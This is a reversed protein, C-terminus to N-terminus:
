DYFIANKNLSLKGILSQEMTDIQQDIFNRPTARTDRDGFRLMVNNYLDVHNLGLLHGVEHAPTTGYISGERIVMNHWGIAYGAVGSMINQGEVVWLTMEYRTNAEERPLFIKGVTLDEGEGLYTSDLFVREGEVLNANMGYRNLYDANLEKSIRVIDFKADEVPRVTIQLQIPQDPRLPYAQLPPKSCSLLLWAVLCFFFMIWGVRALKQDINNFDKV